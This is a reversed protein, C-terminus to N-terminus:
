SDGLVLSGIVLMVLEMVDVVTVSGVGAWLTLPLEIRESVFLSAVIPSSEGWFRLREPSSPSRSWFFTWVSPRLYPISFRWIFMSSFYKSQLVRLAGGESASFPMM